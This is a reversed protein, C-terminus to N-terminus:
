LWALEGGPTWEQVDTCGDCQIPRFLSNEWQKWKQIWFYSAPFRDGKKLFGSEIAIM